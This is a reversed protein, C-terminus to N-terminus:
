NNSHQKCIKLWFSEQCHNIFSKKQPSVILHKPAEIVEYTIWCENCSQGQDIFTESECSYKITIGNNFYFLTESSEINQDDDQYSNDIVESKIITLQSAQKKIACIYNFLDILAYLEMKFLAFNYTIGIRM